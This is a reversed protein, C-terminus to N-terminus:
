FKGRIDIEDWQNLETDFIWADGLFESKKKLEKEGGVMIIYKSRYVLMGHGMRAPPTRATEIKEIQCEKKDIITIRYFDNLTSVGSEDNGGFLYIKKGVSVM